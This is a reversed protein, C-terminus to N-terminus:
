VHAFDHLHDLALAIHLLAPHSVFDMQTPLRVSMKAVVGPLNFELCLASTFPDQWEFSLMKVKYIECFPLLVSANIELMQKFSAHENEQGRNRQGYRWNM